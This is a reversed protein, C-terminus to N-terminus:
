FSEAEARKKATHENHKKSLRKLQNALITKGATLSSTGLGPSNNDFIDIIGKSVDMRGEFVLADPGIRTKVIHAKATGEDKMKSTRAWTFAFDSVQIKGTAEAIHHSYIIEEEEAQRQVQSAVWTPVEVEGGISRVEEYITKLEQHRADSRRIPLLLDPYDVILLDTDTGRSELQRIYALLTEATASNTSFWKIQVSGLYKQTMARVVDPHNRIEHPPFGNFITDYRTGTVADGLELTIHTVNKGQRIAEAGIAVLVWSKGAGSPAAVTGLEGKALGGNMAENICPWPTPICERPNRSLRDEVDDKWNHGLDAPAIINVSKRIMEYASDIDDTIVSAKAMASKFAQMRCFEIFEKKVWEMDPDTINYKQIARVEADITVALLEDTVEKQMNKFVLGTPIEKFERFHNVIIKVLWKRPESDFYAPDIADIVQVVFNKDNLLAVLAKHQFDLGFNVLTDTM